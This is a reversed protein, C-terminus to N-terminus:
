MNKKFRRYPPKGFHLHPVGWSMWKLLIKWTFCGYMPAGLQLVCFVLAGAKVAQHDSLPADLQAQICSLIPTEMTMPTGRYSCPKKNPFFCFFLFPHHSPTGGHSHFGGYPYITAFMPRDAEDMNGHKTRAMRNVM